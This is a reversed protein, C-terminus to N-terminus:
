TNMDLYPQTVNLIKKGREAGESVSALKRYWHLLTYNRMYLLLCSFIATHIEPRASGLLWVQTQSNMENCPRALYVSWIIKLKTLLHFYFKFGVALSVMFTGIRTRTWSRSSRQSCLTLVDWSVCVCVWVSHVWRIGWLAAAAKTYNVGCSDVAPLISFNDQVHEAALVFAVSCLLHFFLISVRGACVYVEVMLVCVRGCVHVRMCVDLISSACAHWHHM